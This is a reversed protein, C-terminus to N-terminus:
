TTQEREIVLYYIKWYFLEEGKKGTNGKKVAANTRGCNGQLNAPSHLTHLNWLVCPQRKFSSINAPLVLIKPSNKKLKIKKQLSELNQKTKNKTPTQPTKKGHM